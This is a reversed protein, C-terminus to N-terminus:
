LTGRPVNIKSNRKFKILSKNYFRNIIGSAAMISQSIAEEYSCPSNIEGAFFISKINKSELNDTLQGPLLGFYEIAYAPRTMIVNELGSISNIIAEQLNEDLVSYFNDIYYEESQSSEPYLVFNIESRDNSFQFSNIKNEILNGFSSYSEFDNTSNKKVYDSLGKELYSYLVNLNKKNKFSRVNIRKGCIKKIKEEDIGKGDISPGIFTKYNKFIM